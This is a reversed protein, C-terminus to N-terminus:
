DMGDLIYCGFHSFHRVVISHADPILETAIEGLYAPHTGRQLDTATLRAGQVSPPL